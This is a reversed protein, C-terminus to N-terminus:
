RGLLAPQVGLGRHGQPPQVRDFWGDQPHSCLVAARVADAFGREMAESGMDYSELVELGAAEFEDHRFEQTASHTGLDDGPTGYPKILNRLGGGYEM